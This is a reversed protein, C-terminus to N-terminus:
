WSVRNATNLHEHSINYEGWDRILRRARVCVCVCAHVPCHTPPGNSLRVMKQWFSHVEAMALLAPITYLPLLLYTHTFWSMSHGTVDLLLATLINVAIAAVWSLITVAVAKLVMGLSPKDAYSLIRVCKLSCM